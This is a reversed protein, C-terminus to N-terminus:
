VYPRQLDPLAIEGREIDDVLRLVPYSTDKYRAKAM